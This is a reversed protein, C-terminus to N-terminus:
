QQKRALITGLQLSGSSLIKCFWAIVPSDVREIQAFGKTALVATYEPRHRIDEILVLGGPKVVRAIESIARARETVQYLNHIAARSVVVDFADDDFPLSRM